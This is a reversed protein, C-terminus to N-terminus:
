KTTITVTRSSGDWNVTGGFTEGVFRAPALTYGNVLRAPEELQKAVGNVYVTSQDLTLKVVTSGKTATVTRTSAEYDVKAGMAEFIARLPTFTSGNVIVPPQEFQQTAGNIDVSVQSSLSFTRLAVQQGSKNLIRLQLVSGEPVEGAKLELGYPLSTQSSIVRGNLLYEVKGIYVDPIKIFPVIRTQKTFAPHNSDIPVYGVHDTPKAADKVDSLLYPNAILGSYYSQIDSSTSLSYDNKANSMGQDVNFYTIAKLRPYKYPMIEYLRQLNLKAWETYDEGASHSYHPVGTESMMLPKRDSYTNYLRTLREVNSTALMSPLSPDGNEYPEIYLSVGVWDVYADGPYYPDIDNAPVDGPSWVMAVNPAEAAFVDHLMRFKAIYQAPNGHWKVWAGNMEGAFRLFIPIGAAKAERAWSRLYAGDTVPDLGDDPEWAIQLAGGADKARKAYSSPFTQGWHAYALYIAHKKGYVSQMKTFINGVKPDQESYIGLYTGYAPEFKALSSGKPQTLAQVISESSEERYLEVTTRIQDARQLKVAGWDKGANVWFKNEQEYYYIAQDYDGIEDFYSDLKGSFLAANEWDGNSAYYDTLFQWHPVAGKSNGAAQLADAQTWHDWVVDARVPAPSQGIGAALIGVALSIIGIRKHFNM